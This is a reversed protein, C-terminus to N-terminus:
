GGDTVHRALGHLGQVHAEAVTIHLDIVFAKAAAGDVEHHAEPDIEVALRLVFLRQTFGDDGHLLGEVVVTDADREGDAREVESDVRPLGQLSM